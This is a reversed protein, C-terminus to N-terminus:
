STCEFCYEVIATPGGPSPPADITPSAPCPCPGPCNDYTKVWSSGNWEYICPAPDEFCLAYDCPDPPSGCETVEGTMSVCPLADVYQSGPLCCGAGTGEPDPNDCGCQSIPWYQGSEHSYYAMAYGASMKFNYPNHVTIEWPINKYGSSDPQRGDADYVDNANLVMARSSGGFGSM